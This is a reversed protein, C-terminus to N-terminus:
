YLAWDSDSLEPAQSQKLYRRMNQYLAADKAWNQFSGAEFQVFTSFM